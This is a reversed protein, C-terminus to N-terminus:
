KEGETQAMAQVVDDLVRADREHPKPARKIRKRVSADHGARWGIRSSQERDVFVLLVREEDFGHRGSVGPGVELRSVIASLIARQEAVSMRKWAATLKRKTSPLDAVVALRPVQELKERHKKIDREIPARARLWEPMSIDEASYADALETLRAEAAALAARVAEHDAEGQALQQRAKVLGDGCLWDLAARTVYSDLGAGDIRSFCGINKSSCVYTPKGDKLRGYFRGKGCSRCVPLGSLMRQVPHGGRRRAPDLLVARLRTWTAVDLIKEVDRGHQDKLTVPQGNADVMVEMGQGGHGRLGATRPQLLVRRLATPQWLSKGDAMRKGADNWRRCITNVGVGSIIDGAAARLQEAEHQIITTQDKEFGFRRRGGGSPRGALALSEKGRRSNTSIDRSQQKAVLGMWELMMGTMAGETVSAVQAGDDHLEALRGTDKSNRTARDLKWVLLGDVERRELAALLADFKTRPSDRRYASVGAGEDYIHRKPVTWGQRKAYDLCLRLQQETSTEQEGPKLENKASRRVYVAFRPPTTV